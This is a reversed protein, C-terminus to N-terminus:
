ERRSNHEGKMNFAGDFCAAVIKSMDLNMGRVVNCLLEYAEGTTSMVRFFGVFAERKEGNGVYSLCISVQESRSIDSTEDMIVAFEEGKQVDELIREHVFKSLIERLEHQFTSSTWQTHTGLKSGLM